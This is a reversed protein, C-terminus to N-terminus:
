LMSELIKEIQDVRIEWTNNLAFKVREQRISDDGKEALAREILDGLDNCENYLYVYKSYKATEYTRLGLVPKGFILYENLKVPNVTDIRGGVKYPILCVDFSRIYAPVMQYPRPGLYVINKSCDTLKKLEAMRNTYGVLVITGKKILKSLALIIDFDIHDYLSGIFGYVPREYHEVDPPSQRSNEIFFMPNVANPVLYTSSNFQKMKEYLADSTTLCLDAEGALKRESREM